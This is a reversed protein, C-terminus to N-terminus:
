LSKLRNTANMIVAEAAAKDHAAKDLAAQEKQLKKTAQEMKKAKETRKKNSERAVDLLNTFMTFRARQLEDETSYGQRFECNMEPLIVNGAMDFVILGSKAGVSFRVEISDLKYIEYNKDVSVVMSKSQKIKKKLESFLKEEQRYQKNFVLIM